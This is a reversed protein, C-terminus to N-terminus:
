PINQKIFSLDVSGFNMVLALNLNELSKVFWRIEEIDRDEYHNFLISFRKELYFKVQRSLLVIKLLLATTQITGMNSVLDLFVYHNPNQPSEVILFNFLQSCTRMILFDTLKQSDSQSFTNKLFKSLRENFQRQGYEPEISAVLYEYLDLKFRRYTQVERTRTLFLQALDQYTYSGEVRGVFHKTALYLERDSLLTPNAVPQVIQAVLHSNNKRALQTQRILYPLYQSLNIEFQRQRQAQIERITQQHEYSSHNPLLCHNYLYPYRSILKGLSLNVIKEPKEGLDVVKVLRQLMQYEESEIFYLVLDHLRKLLGSQATLRRTGAPYSKFLSVLYSVAKKDRYHVQWRNILIHCCRNLIYKFERESQESLIIRNLASRVELDPYNVGEFFLQRFREILQQPSEQHAWYILHDYLTQEDFSTSRNDSYVPEIPIIPTPKPLPPAIIELQKLVWNLNFISEYIRNYVKLVGNQKVALGSLRLEMQETSDDAPIERNQLIEQYLTLLRKTNSSSRLIRDRITKLHEPEDQAEWNELIRTKVLAAVWESEGSVPIPSPSTYALQCLKQTLFPKGGTWALVAKLVAKPNNTKHVLGKALPLSEHLKFGTLEIAHGIDFPTRNIDQMLESPTAVGLLAFTLRRFIPRDARKNYCARILAFFDDLSFNLSKVCDIEDIFIVIEKTIEKLIVREVFESLRQVPSLFERDCWWSGIDFQELLDFSSALNYVIGAYWQNPTIDSSGIATLDIAACAIGDAELKRMARVRLSSKGMQRSNLVYCFEGAKLGNYLDFDAQRVVYSPADLPLSGGVQYATACQVQMISISLGQILQSPEM